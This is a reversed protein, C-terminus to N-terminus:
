TLKLSDIWDNVESKSADEAFRMGEQWTGSGAMDALHSASYGIDSSYSTCFPIVTKGKFSNTKVFNNVPWAADGWWIPYGFFVTDYDSWGSVKTTKLKVDQLSEDNHERSVRSHDNSYDLDEDTYTEEPEIEFLDGGTKNVIKEAVAKTNGTGSFYVVLTKSGSSTGSKQVRGSTSQNSRSEEGSHKSTGCSTMAFVLVACVVVALLKKIKINM